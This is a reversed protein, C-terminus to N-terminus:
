LQTFLNLYEGATLVRGGMFAEEVVDVSYVLEVREVIRFEDGLLRTKNQYFASIEGKRITEAAEQNVAQIMGAVGGATPSWFARTVIGLFHTEKQHGHYVPCGRFLGAAVAEIM